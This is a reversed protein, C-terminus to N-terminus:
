IMEACDPCLHDGEHMKWGADHAENWCKRFDTLNETVEFTEECADCCFVLMGQTPREFSM